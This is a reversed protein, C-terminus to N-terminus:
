KAAKMTSKITDQMSIAASIEIGPEREESQLVAPDADGPISHNPQLLKTVEVGLKGAGVSALNMDIYGVARGNQNNNIRIGQNTTLKQDENSTNLSELQNIKANHNIDEKM